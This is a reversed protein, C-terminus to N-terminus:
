RACCRPRSPSATACTRRRASSTRRGQGQGVGHRGRRRRVRRRARLRVRPLVERAPRHHRLRRHRGPRHRAARRGGRRHGVAERGARDARLAGLRPRRRLLHAVRARAALRDRDHPLDRVPLGRALRRREDHSRSSTARARAGSASRAGASTLDLVQARATPRCTTARVVQPRGDRARRRHRRPLAGRRAAHDHPRLPLRRAAHAGAHLRRPRGQRGDPADLRAARVRARGPRRRRLRLVRHPRVDGRPRADRPARRQHDAVM